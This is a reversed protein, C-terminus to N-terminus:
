YEFRRQSFYVISEFPEKKNNKRTKHRYMNKKEEIM